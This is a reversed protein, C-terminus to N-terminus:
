EDTRDLELVVPAESKAQADKILKKLQPDSEGSSEFFDMGYIMLRINKWESSNMRVSEPLRQASVTWKRKQLINVAKSLAQQTDSTGVDIILIETITTTGDWTDKITTEGLVKGISRIDSIVTPDVRLEQPFLESRCGTLLLLACLLAKALASSQGTKEVRNIRTSFIKPLFVKKM